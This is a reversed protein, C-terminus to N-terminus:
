SRRCARSCRTPRSAARCEWLVDSSAILRPPRAVGVARPQPFCRRCRLASVEPAENSKHSTLAAYAAPERIAAEATTLGELVGMSRERLGPVFVAQPAGDLVDLVHGVTDRARQLDSSYLADFPAELALRRALASAQAAGRGNLPPGPMMSGQLRWDVNWDTEGHRVIFIRCAQTMSQLAKLARARDQHTRWQLRTSKQM